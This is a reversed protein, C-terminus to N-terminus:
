RYDLLKKVFNGFELKFIEILNQIVATDVLYAILEFYEASIFVQLSCDAHDFLTKDNM